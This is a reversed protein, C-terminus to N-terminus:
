GRHPHTCPMRMLWQALGYKTREKCLAHSADYQVKHVVTVRGRVAEHILVPAVLSKSCGMFAVLLLM